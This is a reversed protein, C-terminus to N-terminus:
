TTPVPPSQERWARRANEAISQADEWHIDSATVIVAGGGFEAVRPKSCTAAYTLTWCDIPRFQQLFKQVLLAVQDINGYEESYLWLHHGWGSDREDISFEYAFEIEDGWGTVDDCDRLFRPGRWTAQNEDIEVPLSGLLHEQDNVMVVPQLQYRLWAIEAETLQPLVESFELYNDAM